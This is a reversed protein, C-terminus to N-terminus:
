KKEIDIKSINRQNLKLKADLIRKKNLLQNKYQKENKNTDM